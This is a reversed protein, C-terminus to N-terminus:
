IPDTVSSVEGHEDRMKQDRGHGPCQIEVANPRQKFFWSQDAAIPRPTSCSVDASLSSAAVFAALAAAHTDYFAQFLLGDMDVTASWINAGHDRVQPAFPAGPHGNMVARFVGDREPAWWVAPSGATSASIDGLAAPSWDAGAEKCRTGNKGKRKGTGGNERLMQAPRMAAPQAAPPRRTRQAAQTADSKRVHVTVKGNALRGFCVTDGPAATTRRLIADLGQLVYVVRSKANTWFRHTMTFEEGIDDSCDIKVGTKGDVCPFFETATKKPITVRGKALADGSTIVKEFMPVAASDM